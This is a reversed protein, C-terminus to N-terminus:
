QATEQAWISRLLSMQRRHSPWNEKQICCFAWAAAGGVSSCRTGHGWPAPLQTCRTNLHWIANIRIYHRSGAPSPAPLLFDAQFQFEVTKHMNSRSHWSTHTAPQISCLFHIWVSILSSIDKVIQSNQTCAILKQGYRCFQIKEYLRPRKKLWYPRM